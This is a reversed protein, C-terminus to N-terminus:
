WLATMTVFFPAIRSAAASSEGPVLLLVVGASVAAMLLIVACTPLMPGSRAETVALFSAGSSARSAYVFMMALWPATSIASAFLM